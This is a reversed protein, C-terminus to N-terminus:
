EVASPRLVFGFRQELEASPCDRLAWRGVEIEDAAWGTDLSHILGFGLGTDLFLRGLEDQWCEAVPAALIGTHTIVRLPAGVEPELRWVWPAVELDVYVRQPGNQFYWCGASDPQYNRGIFERLKEHRIPSGRSEPFPGAAQCGDDRMWWEGRADLGLWGRCDPVNPWKLMAARVLDDM